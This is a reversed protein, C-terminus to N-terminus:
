ATLVDQNMVILATHADEYVKLGYLNRLRAEAIPISDAYIKLVNGEEEYKFGFKDLIRKVMEKDEAGSVLVPIQPISGYREAIYALAKTLSGNRVEEAFTRLPYLEEDPIEEVEQGKEKKLEEKIREKAVYLVGSAIKAITLSVWEEERGIYARTFLYKSVHSMCEGREKELQKLVQLLSRISGFLSPNFLFGIVFEFTKDPIVEGTCLKLLSLKEVGDENIGEISIRLKEDGFLMNYTLAPSAFRSLVAKIARETETDGRVEESELETEVGEIEMELIEKNRETKELTYFLTVLMCRLCIKAKGSFDTTTEQPFRTRGIGLKGTAKHLYVTSGCYICSDKTVGKGSTAHTARVIMSNLITKDDLLSIKGDPEVVFIDDQHSQILTANNEIASRIKPIGDKKTKPQIHFNVLASPYQQLQSGLLIVPALGTAGGEERSKRYFTSLVDEITAWKMLQKLKPVFYESVFNCFENWLDFDLADKPVLMRISGSVPDYEKILIGRKILIYYGFRHMMHKYAKELLEDRLHLQIFNKTVELFNQDNVSYVPVAYVVVSLRQTIDL